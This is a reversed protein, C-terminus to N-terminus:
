FFNQSINIQFFKFFYSKTLFILNNIIVSNIGSKGNSNQSFVEKGNVDFITLFFGSDMQNRGVIALNGNNTAILADNWLELNRLTDTYVKLVEINGTSNLRTFFGANHPTPTPM